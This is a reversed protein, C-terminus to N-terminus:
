RGTLAPDVGAVRKAKGTSSTGARRRCTKKQGGIGGRECDSRVCLLLRHGTRIVSRFQAAAIEDLGCRASAGCNHRAGRRRLGQGNRFFPVQFRIDHHDPEAAGASARRDRRGIGAGADDDQLLLGLGFVVRVRAHRAAEKMRWIGIAIAGRQLFVGLRHHAALVDGALEFALLRFHGVFQGGGIRLASRSIQAEQLLDIRREIRGTAAARGERVERTRTFGSVANVYGAIGAFSLVDDGLIPRLGLLHVALREIGAEDGADGRALVDLRQELRRRGPEDGVILALDNAHDGALPPLSIATLALRATM